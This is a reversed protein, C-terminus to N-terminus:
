RCTGLVCTQGAPCDRTRLCQTCVGFVCNPTAPPCDSNMRCAVCQHDPACLKAPLASCDGNTVCQVCNSHATDCV